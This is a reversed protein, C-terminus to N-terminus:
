SGFGRGGFKLDKFFTSCVHCQLERSEGFGVRGLVQGVGEGARGGVV